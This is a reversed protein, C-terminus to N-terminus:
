LFPMALSLFQYQGRSFFYKKGDDGKFFGWFGRDSLSAIAAEEIGVIGYANGERLGILLEDHQLATFEQISLMGLCADRNADYIILSLLPELKILEQFESKDFITFRKGEVEFKDYPELIKPDRHTTHDKISDIFSAELTALGQQLEEGKNM